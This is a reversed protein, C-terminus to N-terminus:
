RGCRWYLLAADRIFVAPAMCAGSESRGIRQAEQLKYHICKVAIEDSAIRCPGHETAGILRAAAGGVYVSTGRWSDVPIAAGDLGRSISDPGTATGPLGAASTVSGAIMTVSIIVVAL